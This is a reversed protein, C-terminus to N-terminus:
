LKVVNGLHCPHFSYFQSKELKEIQVTNENEYDYIKMCFPIKQPVIHQHLKFFHIFPLPALITIKRM